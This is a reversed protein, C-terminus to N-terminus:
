LTLIFLISESPVFCLSQRLSDPISNIGMEAHSGARWLWLDTFPKEAQQRSDASASQFRVSPRLQLSIIGDRQMARGQDSSSRLM